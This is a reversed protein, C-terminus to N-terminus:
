EHPKVKVATGYVMIESAGMMVFSTSYRINVIADANLDKAEKIMREEAQKRAEIMMETYGKIEGGIIHKFSAMIDRGVHKARITNGKVVGLVDIIEKKPIFSTNTLILDNM